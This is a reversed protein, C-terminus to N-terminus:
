GKDGTVPVDDVDVLGREGPPNGSGDRVRCGKIDQLLHTMKGGHSLAREPPLLPGQDSNDMDRFRNSSNVQFKWFINKLGLTDLPIVVSFETVHLCKGKLNITEFIADLRNKSTKRIKIKKTM